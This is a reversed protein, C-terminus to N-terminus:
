AVRGGRTQLDLYAPRPDLAHRGRLGRLVQVLQGLQRHREVVGGDPQQGRQCRDTPEPFVWRAPVHTEVTM